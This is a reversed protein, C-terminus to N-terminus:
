FHGRSAKMELTRLQGGELEVLGVLAKGNPTETRVEWRGSPLNGLTAKGRLLHHGATTITQPTEGDLREVLVHAYATNALAPAEIQLRSEAQLSIRPAPGPVEVRAEAWATSEGSLALTWTGAPVDALPVRGGSSVAVRATYVTEGNEGLLLLQLGRTDPVEALDVQIEFDIGAPRQLEIQRKDGAALQITGSAAPFGNRLSAIRYAGPPIRTILFEGEPSIYTVGFQRGRQGRDLPHIMLVAREARGTWPAESIKGELFAAAVDLDIERDGTVTIERQHFDLPMGFQVRLVYRGPELGRLRFSGDLGAEVQPAMAVTLGDLRVTAGAFPRGNARVVGRLEFGGGLKLNVRYPSGGEVVELERSWSTGTARDRADIRWKGPILGELHFTGKQPEVVSSSSLNRSDDLLVARVEARELDPSSLGLIRGFLEEGRYKRVTMGYLPSGRASFEFTVPGGVLEYGEKRISLRYSGPTQWPYSFGGRPGPKEWQTASGAPDLRELIVNVGIAPDGNPSKVYGRIRRDLDLILELDGGLRAAADLVTVAEGFDPHEAWVTITGEPVGELMFRGEADTGILPRHIQVTPPDLAFDPGADGVSVAM